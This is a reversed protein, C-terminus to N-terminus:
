VSLESLTVQAVACHEENGEGGGCTCLTPGNAVEELKKVPWTTPRSRGCGLGQREELKCLLEGIEKCHLGLNDHRHVEASSGGLAEREL